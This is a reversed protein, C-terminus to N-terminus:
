RRGRVTYLVALGLVLLGVIVVLGWPNLGTAALVEPPHTLVPTISKDPPYQALISIM